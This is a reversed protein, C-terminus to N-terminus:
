CVCESLTFAGLISMSVYLCIINKGLKKERPKKRYKEISPYTSTWFTYYIDSITALVVLSPLYVPHQATSSHLLDVIVLLKILLVLSTNMEQNVVNYRWEEISAHDERFLGFWDHWNLSMGM